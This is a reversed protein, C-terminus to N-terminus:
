HVFYSFMENKMMHWRNSPSLPSERKIVRRVASSRGKIIWFEQRLSSLVSEQGMHDVIIHYYRIIMDTIHHKYPLIFPHKAHDDIQAYDLRGGVCLLGEKLIPSLQHISTGAKRLM